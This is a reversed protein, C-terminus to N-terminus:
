RYRGIRQLWGHVVPYTFRQCLAELTNRAEESARMFDDSQAKDRTREDAAQGRGVLLAVDTAKYFAPDAGRVPPDRPDTPQDHATLSSASVRRPTIIQNRM